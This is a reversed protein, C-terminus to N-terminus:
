RQALAYLGQVVQAMRPYNLKDHTDGALHYQHNRYFSTDTVMVASYGQAWYNLHDSFDVGMVFAPANISRAPLGAVGSMAAKVRRTAGIDAYRGVVAVFDGTSPYVAKMISLPFSQSNPTDTFYGIMEVSVMLDVERKQAALQRAHWASGMHETRFFPPEELTYFVIEVPRPPANRQLLKALELLGAVGSANDDAGPTHTNLTFGQESAQEGRVADGHSDYHAGLVTAKGNAPGFRVVLNRYREGQVEVAQEDVAVGAASLDRKIYDAAANLNDPFDFSRPYVDSSLFQVHQRLTAADVAPAEVSTSGALPQTTLGALLLMGFLGGLMMNRLKSNM